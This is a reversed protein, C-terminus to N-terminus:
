LTGLIRRLSMAREREIGASYALQLDAQQLATELEELAADKKGSQWYIQARDQHLYVADGARLPNQQHLDALRNLLQLSGELDGQKLKLTALYQITEALDHHVPDLKAEQITMAKKLLREAEDYQGLVILTQALSSASYAVQPDDSGLSAESISIARRFLPAADAFRGQNRVACALLQVAKATDPHNVGRNAEVGELAARCFDEADGWRRQSISVVGLARLINTTTTNRWGVTAVALKLGRRM